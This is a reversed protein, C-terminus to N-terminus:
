ACDKVCCLQQKFFQAYIHKLSYQISLTRRRVYLPPQNALMCLITWSSIHLCPRRWPTSMWGVKALPREQSQHLDPFNLQPPSLRCHVWADTWKSSSTYLNLRSNHTSKKFCLRKWLAHSRLPFRLPTDFIPNAPSIMCRWYDGFNEQM